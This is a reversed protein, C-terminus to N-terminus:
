FGANILDTTVLPHPTAQQRIPIRPLFRPGHVARQLLKGQTYAGSHSLGWGEKAEWGEGLDVGLGGGWGVRKLDRLNVRGQLGEPWREQLKGWLGRPGDRGVGGGFEAGQPLGGQDARRGRASAVEWM